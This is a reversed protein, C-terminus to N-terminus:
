IIYTTLKTFVGKKNATIQIEHITGDLPMTSSNEVHYLDFLDEGSFGKYTMVIYSGKMSKSDIYTKLNEYPSSCWDINYNMYRHICINHETAYDSSVEYPAETEVANDMTIKSICSSYDNCKYVDIVSNEQLQYYLPYRIGIMAVENPYRIYPYNQCVKSSLSCVSDWITTKEAIKLYDAMRYDDMCTVNKIDPDLAIIDKPLIGYVLQESLQSKTLSYTYGKSFISIINIDKKILVKSKFIMGNHITTGNISLSADIIDSSPISDIEFDAYLTSYATLWGKSFKANICRTLVYPTDNDKETLTLIIEDAM